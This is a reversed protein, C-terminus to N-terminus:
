MGFKMSISSVEQPRVFTRASPRVNSVWKVGEQLYAVFCSSSLSVQAHVVVCLCVYKHLLKVLCNFQRTIKDLQAQNVALEEELRLVDDRLTWLERDAPRRSGNVVRGVASMEERHSGSVRYAALCLIVNFQPFSLALIISSLTPSLIKQLQKSDCISRKKHVYSEAYQLGINSPNEFVVVGMECKM